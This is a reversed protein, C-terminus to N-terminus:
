DQWCFNSTTTVNFFVKESHVHAVCSECLFKTPVTRMWTWVHKIHQICMRPIVCERTHNVRPGKHCIVLEHPLLWLQLVGSRSNQWPVLYLTKDSLFPYNSNAQHLYGELQIYYSEKHSGSTKPHLPHHYRSISDKPFYLKKDCVLLPYGLSSPTKKQKNNGSSVIVHSLTLNGPSPWIVQHITHQCFILAWVQFCNYPFRSFTTTHVTPTHSCNVWLEFPGPGSVLVFAWLNSKM